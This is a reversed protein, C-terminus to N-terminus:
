RAGACTLVQSDNIEALGTTVKSADSGNPWYYWIGKNFMLM